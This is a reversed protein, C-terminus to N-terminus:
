NEKIKLNRYKAYDLIEQDTEACLGYEENFLRKAEEKTVKKMHVLFFM